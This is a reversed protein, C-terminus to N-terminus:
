KNQPLQDIKAALVFDNEHLGDIKHTFIEIEAHGWGFSIEPHHGEAEALAAVRNVFGLTTAFDDFNFSRNLRNCTKSLSWLPVQQILKEAEACILAPIGGQCPVCKKETLEM